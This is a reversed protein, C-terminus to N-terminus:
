RRRRWRTGAILAVSETSQLRSNAVELREPPVVSPPYSLYGVEHLVSCCGLLLALAVLLEFGLAGLLALVVLALLVAAPGVEAAVLLPRRRRRDFLM